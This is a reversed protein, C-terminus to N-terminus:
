LTQGHSFVAHRSSGMSAAGSQLYSSSRESSVDGLQTQGKPINYTAPFSTFHRSFLVFLSGSHRLQMADFICSDQEYEIHKHEVSRLLYSRSREVDIDSARDCCIGGPSNCVTGIHQRLLDGNRLPHCQGDIRTNNHLAAPWSNRKSGTGLKDGHATFHTRNDEGADLIVCM